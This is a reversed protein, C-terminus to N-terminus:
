WLWFSSGPKPKRGSHIVRNTCINKVHGCDKCGIEEGRLWARVKKGPKPKPLCNPCYTSDFEKVLLSSFAEQANLYGTQVLNGARAQGVVLDCGPYTTGAEREVAGAYAVSAALSGMETWHGEFRHKFSSMMDYRLEDAHEATIYDPLNRAALAQLGDMHAQLLDQNELVFQYTERRAPPIIRDLLDHQAGPLYVRNRLVDISNAEPPLEVKFFDKYIDKADRLNLGDKSCFHLRLKHGDFVSARLYARRKEPDRGLSVLDWTSAVDGGDLSLSFITGPEGGAVMEKQAQAEELEARAIETYFGLRPNDAAKARARDLGNHHLTQWDVVGKPQLVYLQGNQVEFSFSNRNEGDLIEAMHSTELDCAQQYLGRATETDAALSERLLEVSHTKRATEYDEIIRYNEATEAM